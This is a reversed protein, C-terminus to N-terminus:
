PSASYNSFLFYQVVLGLTLEVLSPFFTVCISCGRARSHSWSPSVGAGPGWQHGRHGRGVVIQALVLHPEALGLAKAPCPHEWWSDGELLFVWGWFGLEELHVENLATWGWCSVGLGPLPLVFCFTDDLPWPSCQGRPIVTCSCCRMNHVPFSGWFPAPPSFSPFCATVPASTFSGLHACCLEPHSCPRARTPCPESPSM